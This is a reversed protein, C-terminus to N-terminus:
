THNALRRITSGFESSTALSVLQNLRFRLTDFLRVDHVYLTCVGHDLRRRSLGGGRMRVRSTYFQSRPIQTVRTWYRLTQELNVNPHVRVYLHFKRLPVRYVERLWRLATLIM